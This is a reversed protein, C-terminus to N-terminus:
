RTKDLLARSLGVHGPMGIRQYTEIADNLLARAGERDGDAARDILMMAHFRRIDAQELVNQFSAAQQMAIKFHAEGAAYDRAAAAAIGAATQPFRSVLLMCVTETAILELVRPYLVAALEHEGLVFLGEITLLLLAWSGHTNAEYLRPLMERNQSLLALANERDAMYAKLRFRIGVNTCKFEEPAESLWAAEADNLAQNWNGRLFEAISLQGLSTSVLLTLGADKNTDLDSRLSDELQNLDPQRGFESWTRMQRIYSLANLNGISNAVLQLEERLKTAEEVRGLHYFAFQRRYLHEARDWRGAGPNLEASRRTDELLERFRM